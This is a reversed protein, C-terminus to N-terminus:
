FVDHDLFKKVYEGTNPDQVLITRNTGLDYIFMTVCGKFQMSAMLASYITTNSMGQVFGRNDVDFQTAGDISNDHCSAEFVVDCEVAYKNTRHDVINSIM